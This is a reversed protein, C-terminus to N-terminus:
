RTAGRIESVDIAKPKSSQATLTNTFTLASSGLATRAANIASRLETIHVAKIRAGALSSDTFSFLTLGVAARVANVAARLELLHNARIPTAGAVIPDDSYVTTAAFDQNSYASTETGSLARVKYLYTNGSLASTDSYMTGFVFFSAASSGSRTVEYGATAGAVPNWSVLVSTSSSTTAVLNAPAGFPAIVTLTFARTVTASCNDTATVTITFIGANPNSVSIVGTSSNASVTGTFGASAAATVTVSVNDAPGATPTVTTSSGANVSTDPYTGLTPSPNATVNVTLTATSVAGGSDQVQLTVTKAGPTATCLTTVTATVTGNNNVIASVTVGTPLAAATVTLTGSADENDSVIAITASTGATGATRALPGGATITPRLNCSGSGLLVSVTNSGQNAFALDLEEDGNILGIVVSYPASGTAHPIWTSFTGDGLGNLVSGNGQGNNAVALDDNGDGNLDGVAVGTPMAGPEWGINPIGTAWPVAAGFTGDGNGLLISVTNSAANATALDSRGNGDFDGVAISYPNPGTTETDSQTFTGNGAGRLILVDDSTRSVALDPNGDDDFDATVISWPSAGVALSTAAAFTGNGNGRLISVDLTDFNAVALDLEDDNDFDGVAISDPTGGAAYNVATDFTGDGNGMLISVNDSGANGIALDLDEDGNFDAAAIAYPNIGAPYPVASAFTGDGSGLLISVDNTGYNPTAVDHNADGNFDAMTLRYPASGASLSSFPIFDPCDEGRQVFVYASGADTGGANDDLRAGILITDASIAVSQGFYGSAAADDPLIPAVETWGTGTRVFHHVSSTDAGFVTDDFSSGIVAQDGSLAVAAGFNDFPAVDNAAMVTQQSWSTGSRTFINASGASSGASHHGPAGIVATNGSIAVADGFRRNSQPFGSPTLRQQQSWSTGNRVFVFASGDAGDGYAGVLATDGDIAVSEAFSAGPNGSAPLLETQQSWTTGNRVFVYARGARAGVLATEGSLAVADGFLNGAAANVQLQAQQTWTAGVRVYVYVSGANAGQATDDFPAGVLATDGDVAVALGFHDSPTADSAVLKAQQSWSRGDRVFVYAAGPDPSPPDDFTPAPAGIVATDGSLAVAYGLQDLAVGDNALLKAEQVIPWRSIQVNDVYFYEDAGYSGDTVLFRIRTNDAIFRTVDYEFAGSTEGTFTELTTWSGGGDPSIQVSVSDASGPFWTSATFSFRAMPLDLGPTGLLDAERYISQTGSANDQLRLKGDLVQISGGTAGGGAADTEVWNTTWPANGDNGSYVNSSFTDLVYSGAITTPSILADEGGRALGFAPLGLIAIAVCTWHIRNTRM